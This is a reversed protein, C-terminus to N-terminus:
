NGRCAANHAQKRLERSNPPGSSDTWTNHTCFMIHGNDRCEQVEKLYWSRWTVVDARGSNKEAVPMEEM